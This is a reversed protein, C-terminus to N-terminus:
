QSITIGHKALQELVWRAADQEDNVHMHAVHIDADRFLGMNSWPLCKASGPTIGLSRALGSKLYEQWAMVRRPANHTLFFALRDMDLADDYEKLTMWLTIRASGSQSVSSREWTLKVRQGASELADVLAGVAAGHLQIQRTSVGGNVGTSVHVWVFGTQPTETEEYTLMCEPVGECYRGVDVYAGCVDYVPEYQRNHSGLKGDIQAKVREILERGQPWGFMALKYAEDASTCGYFEARPVLIESTWYTKGSKTSGSTSSKIFEEVTYEKVFEM